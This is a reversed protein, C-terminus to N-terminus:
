REDDNEKTGVREQAWEAASEVVAKIPGHSTDYRVDAIDEYIPRRADTIRKWAEIPDEENLLPRKAGRIRSAITTDDVDLYIVLHDRMLERTEAALVAGGGLAVVGGGALAEAVVEREIRRFEDEGHEAFITAIAGHRAVIVSDTDTFSAGIKKAVRRGISSKGAGMPGTFIVTKTM